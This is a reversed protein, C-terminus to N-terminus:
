CHLVNICHGIEDCVKTIAAAHDFGFTAANFLDFDLAFFISGLTTAYVGIYTVIALKGYKKWMNGVKEKFTPQIAPKEPETSLMRIATVPATM